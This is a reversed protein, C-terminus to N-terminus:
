EVAAAAEEPPKKRSIGKERWKGRRYVVFAILANVSWAAAMAYVIAEPRGYIRVLIYAVPLRVVVTNIVSGWMPSVADGAGRIIGWLMQNFSFVIFWPAIIRLLHTSMEIVERTETFLGAISPGFLLICAVLIIMTTLAIIIGQKTGKDVRGMRNAGVNQGTFVTVANGFSFIPMMVISDIRQLIVNSAIFLTGFSNVLPQVLMAAVAIIAQAVGTPVGLKMVQVAYLKNPALYRLKFEFVDRMKMLRRFCLVCSIFQVVVTGLAAGAVGMGMTVIFFYNFVINLFSAIILYILPSISDGLSRLIGTFINYYSMGLIGILMVNLYMVSGDLIDAPTSMMILLPRAILPGTVTVILGIITVVTIGTGITHSLAERNKAGYYQSVMIGAGVAVGMILVQILFLVPMTGGVSALAHDGILRGLMVADVTSYLQQFLNGILLPVAFSILKVWPTGETMDIATMFRKLYRM